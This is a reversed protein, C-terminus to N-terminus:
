PEPKKAENIIEGNFSTVTKRATARATTTTLGHRKILSVLKLKHKKEWRVRQTTNRMSAVYISKSLTTKMDNADLCANTKRWTM